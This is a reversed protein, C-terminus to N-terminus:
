KRLANFREEISPWDLNKMFADIYAGRNVAYDIFYAHEYTDLALIPVANWVPFTNQADGLYNFLTGTDYDYALWVWGRAAIGTGKLDAAFAEYNGFNKEIAALLEGGPRGGDGGLNDFYIEHNKVGGVAFTLEHKLVRIESYIQNGKAPDTQKLLGLIENSKNVYGMYLKYHEEMTKKSIGEMSLSSEKLPKATFTYELNSASSLRPSQETESRDSAFVTSGALGASIAGLASTKIFDRRKFLDSM